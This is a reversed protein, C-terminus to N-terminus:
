KMCDSTSDEREKKTDTIQMTKKGQDTQSFAPRISIKLSDTNGSNEMDDPVARMKTM